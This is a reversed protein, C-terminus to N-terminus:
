YPQETELEVEAKRETSSGPFPTWYPPTYEGSPNFTPVEAVKLGPGNMMKDNTGDIWFYAEVSPIDTSWVTGDPDAGVHLDKFAEYVGSGDWVSSGYIPASPGSISAYNFMWTSKTTGDSWAYQELRIDASAPSSKKNRLFAGAGIGYENAVTPDKVQSLEGSLEASHNTSSESHYGDDDIWWHSYVQSAEANWKGTTIFARGYTRDSGDDKNGPNIRAAFGYTRIFSYTYSDTNDADGLVDLEASAEAADRNNLVYADASMMDEKSTTASTYYESYDCYGTNPDCRYTSTMNGGTASSKGSATASVAASGTAGNCLNIQGAAISIENDVNSSVHAETSTSLAVMSAYAPDESVQLMPSLGGGIARNSDRVEGEITTRGEVGGKITYTTTTDGVKLTEDASYGAFGDANAYAYFKGKASGQPDGLQYDPDGFNKSWSEGLSSSIEASGALNDNAYSSIQGVATAKSGTEGKVYAEVTGKASVTLKGNTIALDKSALDPVTTKVWAEGEGDTSAVALIDAQIFNTDEYFSHAWGATAGDAQTWAHTGGPMQTVTAASAWGVMVLLVALALMSRMM